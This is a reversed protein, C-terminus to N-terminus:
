HLATSPPVYVRPLWGDCYSIGELHLNLALFVMQLDYIPNDHKIVLPYSCHNCVLPEVILVCSGHCLAREGNSCWSRLPILLKSPLEKQPYNKKFYSPQMTWWVTSEVSSIRWTPPVWFVILLNWHSRLMCCTTRIQGQINKGSNHLPMGAKYIYINYICSQIKLIHIHVYIYMYIHAHIYLITNLGPNRFYTRLSPLQCQCTAGRGTQVPQSQQRKCVSTEAFHRICNACSPSQGASHIRPLPQLGSSVKLPNLLLNRYLGLSKPGPNYIYIYM